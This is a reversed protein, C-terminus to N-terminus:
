METINVLADASDCQGADQGTAPPGALAAGGGPYQVALLSGLGRPLLWVACRARAEERLDPLHEHRCLFFFGCSFFFLFNCNYVSTKGLLFLLIVKSYCQFLLDPCMLYLNQNNMLFYDKCLFYETVCM